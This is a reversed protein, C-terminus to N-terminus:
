KVPRTLVDPLAPAAEPQFARYDEGLLAAVTAAIQAQTVVRTDRREGRPPTDPGLVALWTENSNPIKKGHSTWDQPTRGRGHDPSVILTTTGRYEPLLQLKEWLQRIFRDSNSASTLYQDYRREHAWDDPEGLSVYLVRPHDTVIHELARRYVFADYHEDEWPSPIDDMLRELELVPPSVATPASHQGTVWVPLGSRGTNLIAPFIQWAACAMVRGAFAPRGNLWELVSVNPNPIPDNSVIGPDARGTLIENYGPYSFWLANSVQAPSGADRNGWLQGRRGVEDWLFPMLKQRRATATEGGFRALLGPRAQDSVGGSEKNMLAPDAGRFVEQWRLGDITVLVVNRTKLAPRGRRLDSSLNRASLLTCCSAVLLLLAATLGTLIKM